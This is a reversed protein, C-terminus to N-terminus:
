YSDTRMAKSHAAWKRREAARAAKDDRREQFQLERLLKNYSELREAPLRGDAIAAQVACGPESEHICDNFKCEAALEEIDGFAREIGEAADWLQLERMGPTDIVCGGSPLVILERHTTTHRGRGDDRVEGTALREDGCLANILTSKGVGSSGVFAGTRARELHGLIRDLGEGTVASTIHVPVGFAVTEVLRLSDEISECLDAKTLVIAPDAGSEWALTLYRELRAPNLDRDLSSVIFLVDVNAAVVQEVDQEGAARRVFASRRPLVAQIRSRSEGEGRQYAVWDGVAPRDTPTVAARRLRGSLEAWVERDGRLIYAGRHEIAVRGAHLGAAAYEEFAEAHDPAWGLQEITLKSEQTM